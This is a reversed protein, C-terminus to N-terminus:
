TTKFKIQPFVKPDPNLTHEEMSFKLQSSGSAQFGQLRPNMQVLNQNLSKQCGM